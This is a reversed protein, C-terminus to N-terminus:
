CGPQVVESQRQPEDSKGHATLAAAVKSVEIV